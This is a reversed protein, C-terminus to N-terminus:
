IILNYMVIIHLFITGHPTFGGSTNSHKTVNTSTAFEEMIPGNKPNM